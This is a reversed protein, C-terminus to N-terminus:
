AEAEERYLPSVSLARRMPYNHPNFSFLTCLGWWLACHIASMSIPQRFAQFPFLPSDCYYCGQLRYCAKGIVRWLRTEPRQTGEEFPRGLEDSGFLPFENELGKWTGEGAEQHLVEETQVQLDPERLWHEWPSTLSVAPYPLPLLWTLFLTHDIWSVIM